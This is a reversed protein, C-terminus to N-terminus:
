FSYLIMLYRTSFSGFNCGDSYLILINNYDSLEFLTILQTRINNILAYKIYFSSMVSMQYKRAGSVFM